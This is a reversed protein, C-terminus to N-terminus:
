ESEAKSLLRSSPGVATTGTEVSGHTRSGLTGFILCNSEYSGRDEMWRGDRSNAQKWLRHTFFESFRKEIQLIAFSKPM